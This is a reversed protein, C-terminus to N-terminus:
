ETRTENLQRDAMESESEVPESTEQSFSGLNCSMSFFRDQVM